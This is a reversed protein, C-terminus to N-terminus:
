KGTKARGIKAPLIHGAMHPTFSLENKYVVPQHYQFLPIVYANEAIYRNVAKYGALRKAEDRETYLPVILQDLDQTKWSSHGSNTTMATGLSSEPDASSNGWNYFAAPALKHQFRLEFHKAIEYVEVNAKIGVKRWM